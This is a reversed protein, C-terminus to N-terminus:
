GESDPDAPYAAPDYDLYELPDTKAGNVTVEFHLHPTQAAELAASEGVYGIVQGCAVSTGETVGEPYSGSLNMYYSKMGGDHEICMCYGMFSDRWITTVTGDAFASVETEIEAEIDIGSHVRYDDMTISYVLMDLDFDKSIHGDVPMDYSYPLGAIPADAETDAPESDIGGGSVDITDETDPLETPKETQPSTVFTDDPKEDAKQWTGTLATILAVCLITVLMFACFVYVIGGVVKRKANYDM